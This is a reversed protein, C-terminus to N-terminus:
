LEELLDIEVLVRAYSMCSLISTFQDCQIPKGLISAIKSLCVLSWCCLPLNPFKVWVPVRSMEESFFDFIKTMPRLVVPQGYV